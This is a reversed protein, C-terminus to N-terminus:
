RAEGQRSVCYWGFKEGIPCVARKADNYPDICEVDEFVYVCPAAEASATRGSRQLCYVEQGLKALASSVENCQSGGTCIEPQDEAVAAVCYEYSHAQQAPIALALMAVLVALPFLKRMVPWLACARSETRTLFPRDEGARM